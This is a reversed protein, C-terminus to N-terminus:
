CREKSAAARTAARICRATCSAIGSTSCRPRATLTPITTTRRRSRPRWTVSDDISHSWTYSALFEFHGSFRKRVNVTFANYNSTGTSLNAVEDSFPVPVGVGLNYSALVSNALALVQAPAYPTLTPNLGGPRFFNVLAAPIYPQGNVPNIGATNVNLPSTDPSVAGAEVANLWNQIILPGHAANVNIPRYLRRGGNFNYQLTLATGHGLDQEIAFSAQESGMRSLIALMAKRLDSMTHFRDAPDKKLCRQVLQDVSSAVHRM